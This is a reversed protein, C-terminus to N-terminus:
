KGRFFDYLYVNWYRRRRIGYSENCTIQLGKRIGGLATYGVCYNGDVGVLELSKVDMKKLYEARCAAIILIKM